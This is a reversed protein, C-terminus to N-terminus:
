CYQSSLTQEGFRLSSLVAQSYTKEKALPILQPLTSSSDLLCM